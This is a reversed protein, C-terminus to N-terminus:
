HSQLESHARGIQKKLLSFSLNSHLIRTDYDNEAWAQLNSSHGWFEAEASIELIGSHGEMRGDLYESIEDISDINEVDKLKEKPINLLLYKCHAFPIDMVYIVTGTDKLELSLYDNIKFTKM